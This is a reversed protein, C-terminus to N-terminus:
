DRQLAAIIAESSLPMDRVRVGLTAALANGVAAATPGMSAEGAGLSPETSALVVVDVAPVESFTLIPYSEWTDSTVTHPDCRVQERVTWSVAQIAGGEIQNTVGDPNIVMGVDVAVTLKRVRLESTAQVQAVVACYAGSGKYRAYGIGLGSDPAEIPNGWGAHEAAAMLVRRGRPDALHALRFEVPDRDSEAALEDMFCEIAFVNLHAGLSRLASTRIPMTTLRHAIVSQVPFDYGPVANRGSGGGRDQPPDVAAPSSQSHQHGYALLSNPGLSGPRSTHGNSWVEHAWSCVNGSPDLDAQLQVRMAPGLPSWALEDQRSWVVRVPRGPVRMALLAADYAADDAGNHGYCGANERHQVIIAEDPLDLAAAIASRLLFIGQSHTWIQLTDHQWWAIATSTGISAHALYPRSYTATRSRIVDQAGGEDRREYLQQTQAPSDVLFRELASSDPLTPSEQWRSRAALLQGAKLAVEERDALVALFNAEIVVRHVGPIAEADTTPASMLSAGRSPPRIVRAHLQGPLRLDGIYYDQGTLKAALDVRQLSHGVNTYQNPPKPQAHGHADRQLLETTPLQWYSVNAGVAWFVGDIISLESENANLIQAAAARCLARVEACVQRLAAGSQQVSLSGSTYGEDPGDKTNAAAVRVRAPEVDLEDGVIQALATLIGQGLEVKGTRALVHGSPDFVIWSSLTRNAALTPPLVGVPPHTM